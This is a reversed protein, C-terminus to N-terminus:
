KEEVVSFSSSSTGVKIIFTVTKQTATSYFTYYTVGDKVETTYTCVEPSAGTINSNSVWLETDSYVNIKYYNYEAATWSDYYMPSSVQIIAEVNETGYNNIQVCSYEGNNMTLGTGFSFSTKEDNWNVKAMVFTPYLENKYFSVYEHNEDIWELIYETGNSKFTEKEYPGVINLVLSGDKHSLTIGVEIPNTSINTLTTKFEEGEVINEKLVIQPLSGYKTVLMKNDSVYVTLSNSSNSITEDEKIEYTYLYATAKEFSNSSVYIYTDGYYNYVMYGFGDKLIGSSSENTSGNWKTINIEGTEENYTYEGVKLSSDNYVLIGKGALYMRYNTDNGVYYMGVEKGTNITYTDTSLTVFITEDDNYLIVIDTGTAQMYLYQTGNLTANYYGDLVLTNTENTYTSTGTSSVVKFKLNISWNSDFYGSVVEDKEKSYTFEKKVDNLTFTLKTGDLVYGSEYVVGKYTLKLKGSFRDNNLEYPTGDLEIKAANAIDFYVGAEAGLTNLTETGNKIVNNESDFTLTSIISIGNVTITNGDVTYTGTYQGKESHYYTIKGYGDLELIETPYNGYNGAEQGRFTYTKETLDFKGFVSFSRMAEDTETKFLIEIKKPASTGSYGPVDTIKAYALGQYTGKGDYNGENLDVYVYGNSVSTMYITGYEFTFTNEFKYLGYNSLTYVESSSYQIVNGDKDKVLSDELGVLSNNFAEIYSAVYGNGFWTETDQPVYVHCDLGYASFAGMIPTPVLGIQGIYCFAGQGITPPVATKFIIEQLYSQGFFAAEGISTLGTGFTVGFLQGFAFAYSGVTTLNDGFIIFRTNTTSDSTNMGVGGIVETLEENTKYVVGTGVYEYLITGYIYEGNENAELKISKRETNDLAIVQKETSYEEDTFSIGKYSYAYVATSYDDIVVVAVDGGIQYVIADGFYIGTYEIQETTLTLYAGYTVGFHNIVINAEEDETTANEFLKNWVISKAYIYLYDDETEKNGFVSNGFKPLTDGLFSVEHLSSTDFASDGITTVTAPISLTMLSSDKFAEEEITTVNGLEVAYIDTGYFAATEIICSCGTFDVMAIYKNGMFAEEKVVTVSSPIKVYTAKLAKMDGIVTVPLDNYESPITVYNPYDYGEIANAIYGDKSDNLVLEFGDKVIKYNVNYKTSVDGYKVTIEYVGAEDKKVKSSDIEYDTITVDGRHNRKGIVELDGVTFEEGVVFDTKASKLELTTVPDNVYNITYTTFVNKYTITIQYAGEKTSDVKSSDINYDTIEETKNNSYVASVKITGINFEDGVYFETVPEGEIKIEKLIPTNNDCSTLLITVIMLTIISLSKIITKINKM